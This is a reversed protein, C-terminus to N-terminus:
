GSNRACQSACAMWDQIKEGDGALLMDEFLSLEEKFHRLMKLVQRRNSIFIDRWMSPSSSALRTTDRFGGAALPLARESGPARAVTNVLAAAVLHPLHSVASVAWDHEEPDMELVRAGVGAALKRVADLAAAPTRPTPTIIYFANEFLYSPAGSM